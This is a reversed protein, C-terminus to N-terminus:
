NAELGFEGQLRECTGLFLEPAYYVSMRLRQSADKLGWTRIDIVIAPNSKAGSPTGLYWFLRWNNNAGGVQLIQFKKTTTGGFLGSTVLAEENHVLVDIKTGAWMESLRTTVPASETVTEYTSAIVCRFSADSARASGMLLALVIVTLVLKLALEGLPAIVEVPGRTGAEKERKPYFLFGALPFPLPRAGNFL